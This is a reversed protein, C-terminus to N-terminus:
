CQTTSPSHIISPLGTDIETSGHITQIPFYNVYHNNICNAISIDYTEDLKVWFVINNISYWSCRHPYIRVHINPFYICHLWLWSLDVISWFIIETCHSVLKNESHVIERYIFLEASYFTKDNKCWYMCVSVCCGGILWLILTWGTSMHMHLMYPVRLLGVKATDKMFQLLEDVLLM